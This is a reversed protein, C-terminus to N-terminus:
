LFPALYFIFGMTFIIPVPLIKHLTMDMDPQEFPRLGSLYKLYSGPPFSLTILLINNKSIVSMYYYVSTTIFKRSTNMHLIVSM